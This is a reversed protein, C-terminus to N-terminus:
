RIVRARAISRYTSWFIFTLLIAPVVLLLDPQRSFAVALYLVFYAYLLFSVVLNAVFVSWVHRAYQGSQRLLIAAGLFTIAAVLVYEMVYVGVGAIVGIGAVFLVLSVVRVTGGADVLLVVAQLALLVHFLLWMLGKLNWFYEIRPLDDLLMTSGYALSGAFLVVLVVDLRRPVGRVLVWLLHLIKFIRYLWIDEIDEPDLIWEQLCGLIGKVFTITSDIGM